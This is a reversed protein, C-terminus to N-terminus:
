KALFGDRTGNVSFTHGDVTGGAGLSGTMYLNGAPDYCMDYVTEDFAGGIQKIWEVQQAKIPQWQTGILLVWIASLLSRKM